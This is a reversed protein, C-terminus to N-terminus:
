GAPPRASRLLLLDTLPPSLVTPPMTAPTWTRMAAPTSSKWHAYGGCRGADDRSQRSQCQASGYRGAPRDEPRVAALRGRDEDYGHAFTIVHVDSAVAAADQISVIRDCRFAVMESEGKFRRVACATPHRVSHPSCVQRSWGTSWAEPAYHPGAPHRPPSLGFGLVLCVLM